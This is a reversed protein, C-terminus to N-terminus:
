VTFSTEPDAHSSDSYSSILKHLKLTKVEDELMKPRQKM